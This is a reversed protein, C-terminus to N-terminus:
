ELNEQSSPSTVDDGMATAAELDVSARVRGSQFIM